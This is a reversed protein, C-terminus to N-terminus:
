PTAAAPYAKDYAATAEKTIDLAPKYYVTNGADVVVDLGQEEAIKQVVQQMQSGARQLIENRTRDVETQVDETLRQLERQKRQGDYNLKDIAAPALKGQGTQLQNQIDQIEKRLKEIEQQKPAFKAELEKQAKQIEATNLVAAQSNIVAVKIQAALFPSAALLLVAIRYM